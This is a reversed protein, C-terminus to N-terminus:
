SAFFQEASAPDEPFVIVEDIMDDLNFRLLFLVRGAFRRGRSEAQIDGWAAVHHEGVMWDEWKVAEYTGKTKEVLDCLHEAVREHGSFVGLSSRGGAVRYTALPSLLEKVQDQDRHGVHM